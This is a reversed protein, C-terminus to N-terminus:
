GEAQGSGEETSGNPSSNAGSLAHVGADETNEIGSEESKVESTSEESPLHRVHIPFEAVIRWEENSDKARVSLRVITDGAIGVRVGLITHRVRHNLKHMNFALVDEAYTEGNPAIVQLREEFDKNEEGEERRWFALTMWQLPLGADEPLNEGLNVTLSELVSIMSVQKGIDDVIARECPVFFLLKPM